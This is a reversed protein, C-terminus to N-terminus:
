SNFIEPNEEMFKKILHATFEDFGLGRKSSTSLYTLGGLDSQMQEIDEDAVTQKLDSKCGVLLRYPPPRSEDAQARDIEGAWRKLDALSEPDDLAFMMVIVHAGRYYSRTISRFREAGATDWMQFKINTGGAPFTRIRFDVGITCRYDEGFSDDSWRTLFSTKGAGSSGILVCKAVVYDDGIDAKSAPQHGPRPPPPPPPPPPPHRRRKVGSALFFGFVMTCYVALVQLWDSSLARLAFM